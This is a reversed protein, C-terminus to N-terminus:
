GNEQAMWGRMINLTENPHKDVLNALKRLSSARMQGEIQAVDVMSDDEILGANLPDPLAAATLSAAGAPRPGALAPLAGGALAAQEMGFGGAPALTTLRNVM